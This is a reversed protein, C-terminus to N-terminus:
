VGFVGTSGLVSVQAGPGLPGNSVAHPTLETSNVIAFALDSFAVGRYLTVVSVEYWFDQSLPRCGPSGPAVYVPGSDPSFENPGTGLLTPEVFLSGSVGAVVIAVVTWPPLPRERPVPGALSSAPALAGTSDPGM